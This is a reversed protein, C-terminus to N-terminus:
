IMACGLHPRPLISLTSRPLKSTRNRSPSRCTERCYDFRGFIGQTASPTICASPGHSTSALPPLEKQAPHVQRSARFHRGARRRMQTLRKLVRLRHRKDAPRQRQVFGVLVKRSKIGQALVKQPEDDGPSAMSCAPGPM